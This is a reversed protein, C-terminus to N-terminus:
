DKKIAIIDKGGDRTRRTLEVEYGFGDFLEAIVKEFQRRELSRLISPHKAIEMMFERSIFKSFSVISPLEAIPFHTAIVTNNTSASALTRLRETVQAWLVRGSQEDTSYTKGSVVNLPFDSPTPIWLDKPLFFAKSLIICAIKPDDNAAIPARRYQAIRQRAEELSSFGNAEGFTEWALRVPLNVSKTFFGGGAISNRPTRVKFLFPEGVSLAKFTANPSPRWFNVEEINPKAAHLRSWDYDTVAVFLRMPFQCQLAALIEAGLRM